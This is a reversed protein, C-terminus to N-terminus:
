VITVVITGKGRSALMKAVKTIDRGGNMSRLTFKPNNALAFNSNVFHLRNLAARAVNSSPKTETQNTFVQSGYAPSTPFVCRFLAAERWM